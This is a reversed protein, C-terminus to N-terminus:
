QPKEKYVVELVTQGVAKLTEKSVNDMDDRLTHWYWGFGTESDTDLQIIDISPIHRDLNVPLHDDTIAGGNKDVFYRGYGLNRATDWVKEVVGGAYRMSFYEKYFVAGEAGVMDLLIGYRAKYDKVHPNKAWYQSGLCWTNEDTMQAMFSPAGYDEADFFIIDVGLEPAKNQLIRAIELLVGVGSAGDNAGLIPQNYNAPNPDHDAFPRTDWHAFLLIRDKKEPYFTGIINRAKLITGDFAKLDAKQEIVDAGFRKLEAVLYDGCAVHTATNPVRTGFAVQKDVFNYASDADFDPSVKVYTETNQKTNSNSTKNGCSCTMLCFMLGGLYINKMKM